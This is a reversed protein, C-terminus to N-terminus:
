VITLNPVGDVPRPPWLWNCHDTDYFYDHDIVCVIDENTVEPKLHSNFSSNLVYVLSLASFVYMQRVHQALTVIDGREKCHVCCLGYFNNEARKRSIKETIQDRM